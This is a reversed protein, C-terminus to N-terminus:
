SFVTIHSFHRNKKYRQCGFKLFDTVSFIKYCSSFLACVFYTLIASCLLYALSLILWVGDFVSLLSFHVHLVYQFEPDLHCASVTFYSQFLTFLLTCSQCPKCVTFLTCEFLHGILWFIKMLRVLRFSALNTLINWLINQYTRLRQKQLDYIIVYFNSSIRSYNFWIGKFPPSRYTICHRFLYCGSQKQTTQRYYINIQIISYVMYLSLTNLASM